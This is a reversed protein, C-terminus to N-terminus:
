RTGASVQAARSGELAYAAGLRAASPNMWQVSPASAITAVALPLLYYIARYAVLAAILLSRNM